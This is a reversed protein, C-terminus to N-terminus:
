WLPLLRGVEGQGREPGDPDGPHAAPSLPSALTTAHPYICMQNTIATPICLCLSMCVRTTPLVDGAQGVKRTAASWVVVAESDCTTAFVHPYAPNMALGWLDGEQGQVLIEPTDDVEWIDCSGTGPLPCATLEALPLPLLLAPTLSQAWQHPLLWLQCRAPQM